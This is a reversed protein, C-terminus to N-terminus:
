PGPPLRRMTASRQSTGSWRRAARERPRRRVTSRRSRRGRRRGGLASTTRSGSPRWAGPSSRRRCGRAPTRARALSTSTATGRTATTRACTRSNSSTHALGHTAGRELNHHARWTPAVRDGRRHHSRRRRRPGGSLAARARRRPGARDRRGVRGGRAGRPRPRRRRVDHAREARRRHPHGEPPRRAPDLRTPAHVYVSPGDPLPLNREIRDFNDRYADGLFLTHPRLEPYARDLGWFFSIASGSFTKRGISARGERGAAPAPVRLASGRQRRRRRRLPEGTERARWGARRRQGQGRRSSAACRRATHSSSAASRPSRRSSRSSATCGARPTGCATRSSATPPSLSPRRHASLASAWTSTRIRSRRGCGRRTSSSRCTATTRCSRGSGCRSSSTPPRPSTRSGASTATSSGPCGSTM